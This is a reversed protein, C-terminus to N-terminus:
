VGAGFRRCLDCRCGPVVPWEQILRGTRTGSQISMTAGDRMAEEIRAELTAFDTALVPRPAAAQAIPLEDWSFRQVPPPTYPTNVQVTAWRGRGTYNVADPDDEPSEIVNLYQSTRQEGVRNCVYVMEGDLMIEVREDEHCWEGIVPCRWDDDLGDSVWNNHECQYISYCRDNHEGTDVCYVSDLDYYGGTECLADGCDDTFYVRREPRSVRAGQYDGDVYPAVIRSEMTPHQLMALWSGKLASPTRKMGARTLARDGTVAGYWRVYKKTNVNLIGRGAVNGNKREVVLVLGNDGSGHYASSYADTPHHDDWLCFEDRSCAMCSSVGDSAGQEYLDGFLCDNPYLEFNGTSNMAKIREVEQKVTEDDAGRASMWSGLPCRTFRGRCADDASAFGAAWPGDADFYVMMVPRCHRLEVDLPTGTWDPARQGKLAQNLTERTAKDVAGDNGLGYHVFLNLRFEEINEQFPWYQVARPLLGKRELWVSVHGNHYDKFFALGLTAKFEDDMKLKSAHVAANFAKVIGEWMYTLDRSSTSRSERATMKYMGATLGNILRAQTTMTPSYNNQAYEGDYFMGFSEAGSKRLDRIRDKSLPEPAADSLVGVSEIIKALKDRTETAEQSADADAPMIAFNLSM